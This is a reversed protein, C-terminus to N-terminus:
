QSSCAVAIDSEVGGTAPYKHHYIQQDPNRNVRRQEVSDEAIRHCPANDRVVFFLLTLRGARRNM